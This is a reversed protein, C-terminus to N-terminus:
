ATACCSARTASICRAMTRQSRDTRSSSRSGPRRMGGDYWFISLPGHTDSAAFKYQTISALPATENSIEKPRQWNTSCAEVCVPDGIKMAKFIGSLEHCGIDGLVGTGFDWWGRWAFPHYCPHYPRM